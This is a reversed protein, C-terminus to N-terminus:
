SVKADNGQPAKKNIIAKREPAKRMSLSEGGKSAQSTQRLLSKGETEHTGEM